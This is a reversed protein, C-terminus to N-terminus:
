YRRWMLPGGLTTVSNLIFLVMIVWLSEIVDVIIAKFLMTLVCRHAQGRSRPAQLYTGDDRHTLAPGEALLCCNLTSM